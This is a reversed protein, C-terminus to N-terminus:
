VGDIELLVFFVYEACFSELVSGGEVDPYVAASEKRWDVVFGREKLLDLTRRVVGSAFRALRRAEAKSPARLYLANKTEVIENGEVDPEAVTALEGVELTAVGDFRRTPAVDSFVNEARLSEVGDGVGRRLEDTLIAILDFDVPVTM